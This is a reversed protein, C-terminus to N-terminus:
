DPVTGRLGTMNLFGKRWVVFTSAIVVFSALLVSGVPSMQSMFLGVCVYVSSLGYCLTVTKKLPRGRDMIQDYVHGRDSEFLPRHNLWRRAVSVATDLLPLGFMMVAVLFAHAGQALLIIMVALCFGLLLSGADGMFIRAPHRNFPLFGVVGGMLALCMTLRVPDDVASVGWTAWSVSLLLMGVAMIGTVGACLGDLGDLLNLSNTAGVVLVYVMAMNILDELGQPGSQGLWRIDPRIGGVALLTAAGIQGTLKQRPSLDLMDDAAGVFCATLAGGAIMILWRVNLGTLGETVCLSGALIGGLIGCLIGIGGLYAVPEKHTKVLDDPQDVIGWRMALARCLLTALLSTTVSIVLVPWFELVWALSRENGLWATM